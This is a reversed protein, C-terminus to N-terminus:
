LLLSTNNTNIYYHTIWMMKAVGAPTELEPTHDIITEECEMHKVKNDLKNSALVDEVESCITDLEDDMGDAQKVRAEIIVELERLHNKDTSFEPIKKERLTYIMLCPLMSDPTKHVYHPYVRVGTTPLEDVVVAIADRIQQRAHAM